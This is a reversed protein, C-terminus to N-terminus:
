STLTGTGLEPAPPPRLPKKFEPAQIKGEAQSVNGPQAFHLSKKALRRTIPQPLACRIPPAKRESISQRHLPPILSCAATTRKQESNTLGQRLRVPHQKGGSNGLCDLRM